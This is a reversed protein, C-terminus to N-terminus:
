AGAGTGVRTLTAGRRDTVSGDGIQGQDNSGWCGRTGTTTVGCGHLWGADVETWRYTDAAAVPVKTSATSGNALQGYRNFGWCWLAQADDIACTQTDGLSIRRFVAAGQVRTPATRDRTTGDGLQGRDNRGWCWASGDARLGCTHQWSAEVARWDTAAGIRFPVNKRVNGAVGLEGQWSQGWCWASGDSRVACVHWAGVSVSQWTAGGDAVRVPRQRNKVADNGLQGRENNGWCWLAGNLRIGCTTFYGSEVTRYKGGGVVKVPVSSNTRAGSGLQGWKGLGWCYAAGGARVGCTTTGSTSIHTWDSWSGVRVPSLRDKTTGDGLQGYDNDGWCWATGAPRIECSASAGASVTRASSVPDLPTPEVVVVALTGTVPRDFPSRQNRVTFGVEYSGATTPTGVVTAGSGATVGDPLGTLDAVVLRGREAPHVQVPLALELPAGVTAQVKGTPTVVPWRSTRTFAQRGVRALSARAAGVDYRGHRRAAARFRTRGLDCVVDGALCVQFTQVRTGAPPVDPQQGLFRSSVGQGKRDGVASAATRAARDGDGVLVVSALRDLHEPRNRMAVLTRHVVMAGQSYGTLVLQQDPCRTAASDLLAITSRVGGAVDGRWARVKGKKVARVAPLRHRRPAALTLASKTTRTVVRTVVRTEVSRGGTAAAGRYADGVVDLTRGLSGARPRGKEGNGPVGVLLVQACGAGKSATTVTGTAASTVTTPAAPQLHPGAFASVVALVSAAAVKFSQM